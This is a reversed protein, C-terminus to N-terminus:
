IVKLKGGVMYPVATCKFSYEKPALNVVLEKEAPGNLEGSDLATGEVTFSHTDDVVKFIISDGRRVQLDYKDYSGGRATIEHDKAAVTPSSHTAPPTSRQTSKITSPRPSTSKTPSESPRRTISPPTSGIPNSKPCATLATLAVLALAIRPFRSRNLTNM